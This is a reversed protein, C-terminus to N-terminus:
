LKFLLLASVVLSLVAGSITVIRVVKDDAAVAKARIPEVYVLDNQKLLYYPSKFVDSSALNLRAFIRKGNEERVILVNDRRGYITLDGAMGLVDIITAREGNIIYTAPRGVEGLVTIKYNLFRVNVVPSKLYDQLKGELSDQLAATSLGSVKMKGLVPFDINGTNDVKYSRAGESAGGGTPAGTGIAAGQAALPPPTVNGLNFVASAQLNLSGVYVDLIDGPEILAQFNRISDQVYIRTSDELDNFYAVKRAHVCSSLSFLSVLAALALYPMHNKVHKM